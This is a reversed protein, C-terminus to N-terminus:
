RKFHMNLKRSLRYHHAYITKTKELELELQRQYISHQLSQLFKEHDIPKLIFHNVGYEIARIFFDNDDYATTIIIQVHEDITRIHRILELGNLFPMKIDTIVIDPRFTMFLELAEQGNKAVKVDRIRRKLLRTLMDRAGPEDEVYLVKIDTQVTIM